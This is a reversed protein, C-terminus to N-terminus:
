TLPASPKGGSIGCLGGGASPTIPFGEETVARLGMNDLIPLVDALPAANGKRYLKFRFETAADGTHRYARVQM